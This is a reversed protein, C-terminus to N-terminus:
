INKGFWHQMRVSCICWTEHYVIVQQDFYKTDYSYSSSTSFKPQKLHLLNLQGSCVYFLHIFAFCVLIKWMKAKNVVWTKDCSKEIVHRDSHSFRLVAIKELRDTSVGSSGCDFVVNFSCFSFYFQHIKLFIIEVLTIM